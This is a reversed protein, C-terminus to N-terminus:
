ISKVVPRGAIVEAGGGRGWICRLTRRRRPIGDVRRCRVLRLLLQAIRIGADKLLLRHFIKGVSRKRRLYDLRHLLRQIGCNRGQGMWGARLINLHYSLTNQPPGFLSLAIGYRQSHHREHLKLEL